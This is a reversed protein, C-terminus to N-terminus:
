DVLNYAVVLALMITAGVLLPLGISRGRVFVLYLAVAHYLVFWAVMAYKLTTKRNMNSIEFHM